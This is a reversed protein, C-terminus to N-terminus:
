GVYLTRAAPCCAIFGGDEAGFQYKVCWRTSGGEFQEFGMPSKTVARYALEWNGAAAIFSNAVFPNATNGLTNNVTADPLCNSIRIRERADDPSFTLLGDGFIFRNSTDLSSALYSWMNQHMTAVVPGYEVPASSLFMRFDRHNFQTAVPTKLKSFCGATLWGTPENIGDGTITARNRNIRYSRMGSRIIFSLLDYGSEQLVKRQFCFVGRFDYTRGQLFQINGEPGLPGDCEADCTYKGIDGYSNIRPYMFNSRSVTDQGYLDLLEACEINCDVELGLVEPMFFSIDLSAAEFAKTEIDDFGGIIKQKSDIGVRMLKRAISRVAKIDVLNDNDIRFNDIHGGEKMFIREQMKIAQERDHDELDKESRMIPADLEKKIGNLASTLQQHKSVLEGYEKSHDEAAKKIEDTDAKVGSYHATLDKFKQEMDKTTKELMTSVNSMEKMLDEVAQNNAVPDAVIPEPDKTIYMGVLTTSLLGAALIGRMPHRIITKM